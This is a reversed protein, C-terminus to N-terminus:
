QAEIKKQVKDILKQADYDYFELGPRKSVNANWTSLEHSLDVMKKIDLLRKFVNKYSYLGKPGTKVVNKFANVWDKAFQGWGPDMDFNSNLMKTVEQPRMIIERAATLSGFNYKTSSKPKLTEKKCVVWLDDVVKVCGLALYYVDVDYKSHNTVTVEKSYAKGVFGFFLSFVALMRILKLM